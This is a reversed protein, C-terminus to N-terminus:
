PLRPFIPLLNSTTYLFLTYLGQPLRPVGLLHPCLETPLSQVLGMLKQVFIIEDKWTSYVMRMGGM